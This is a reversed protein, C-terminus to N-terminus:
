GQPVILNINAQNLRTKFQKLTNPRAFVSIMLRPLKDISYICAYVSYTHCM